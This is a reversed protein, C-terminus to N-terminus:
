SFSGLGKTPGPTRRLVGPGVFDRLARKEQIGPGVFDRLARKEENTNNNNTCNDNIIQIM